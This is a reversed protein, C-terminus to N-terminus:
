VHTLVISKELWTATVHYTDFPNLLNQTLFSFHNLPWLVRLKLLNHCEIAIKSNEWKEISLIFFYTWPVQASKFFSTIIKAM